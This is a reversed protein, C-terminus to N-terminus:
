FLMQRANWTGISKHNPDVTSSKRLSNLYDLIDDKTMDHFTKQHHFYKSLHSIKKIKTEKTSEKINIENQEAIIYDCIIKANIPNNQLVENLIRSIHPILHTTVIDINRRTVIIDEVKNSLAIQTQYVERAQPNCNNSDFNYMSQVKYKEEISM